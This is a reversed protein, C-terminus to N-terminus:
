ETGMSLRRRTSIKAEQGSLLVSLRQEPSKAQVELSVIAVTSLDVGKGM